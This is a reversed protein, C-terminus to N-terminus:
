KEIEMGYKLIATLELSSINHPWSITIFFQIDSSNKPTRTSMFNWPHKKVQTM